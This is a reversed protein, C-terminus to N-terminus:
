VNASHKRSPGFQLRSSVLKNKQLPGGRGGGEGGEGEGEGSGGGESGKGGAGVADGGLTHLSGLRSSRAGRTSTAGLPACRASAVVVVVVLPTVSSVAAVVVPAVLRLWACSSLKPLKTGAAVPATPRERM